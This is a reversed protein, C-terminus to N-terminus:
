RHAAVFEEFCADPISLKNEEKTFRHLWTGVEYFFLIDRTLRTGPGLGM